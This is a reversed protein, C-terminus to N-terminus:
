EYRRADNADIFTVAEFEYLVSWMPEAANATSHKLRPM